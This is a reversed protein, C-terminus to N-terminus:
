NLMWIFLNLISAFSVWLIYPVFLLGAAKSIEYFKAMTLAIMFWLAIICIMGYLPSRMGFFLLSWLVNFLLQIGFFALADKVGKKKLGKSFVLYAAIGMLIYLITWVPGFVWNPPNFPPKSLSAYWGQISPMTFFSGIFGALLCALVFLAAIGIERPKM